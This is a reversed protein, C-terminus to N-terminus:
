HNPIPGPEDDGAAVGAKRPFLVYVDTAGEPGPELKSRPREAIVAVSDPGRHTAPNARGQRTAERIQISKGVAQIGRGTEIGPRDLEGPSYHKLGASPVDGHQM